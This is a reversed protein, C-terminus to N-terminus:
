DRAVDFLQSQHFARTVAGVSPGPFVVPVRLRRKRRELACCSLEQAARVTYLLEDNKARSSALGRRKGLRNIAGLQRLCHTRNLAVVRNEDDGPVRTARCRQRPTQLTECTPSRSSSFQTSPATISRITKAYEPPSSVDTAMGQIASFYSASIM